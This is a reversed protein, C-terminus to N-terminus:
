HCLMSSFRCLFKEKGEEEEEREGNMPQRDYEGSHLTEKGGSLAGIPLMGNPTLGKLQLVSESEERCSFLCKLQYFGHICLCYALDLVPVPLLYSLFLWQSRGVGQTLSSESIPILWGTSRYTVSM